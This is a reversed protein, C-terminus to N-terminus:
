DIIIFYPFVLEKNTIKSNANIFMDITSDLLKTTEERTTDILIVWHTKHLESEVFDSFPDFLLPSNEVGKWVVMEPSLLLVKNEEVCEKVITSKGIQRPFHIEYICDELCATKYEKKNMGSGCYPNMLRKPGVQKSAETAANIANSLAQKFYIAQTDIDLRM